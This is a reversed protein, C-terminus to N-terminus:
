SGTASSPAAPAAAAVPFAGPTADLEDKIRRSLENKVSWQEEAVAKAQVRVTLNADHFAVVGPVEPRELLRARWAPDRYLGDAARELAALVEDLRAGYGVAVEVVARGWVRTMNSVLQITGNPIVHMAGDLGRLVTVRMTVEEVTGSVAGIKVVDGLTYQNELLIFLGALYDKVINQAGFALAAGVVGAGAVIPGVNINVQSLMSLVVSVWVVVRGVSTAAGVLTAGRQRREADDAGARKDAIRAVIRRGVVRAATDLAIGAFLLLGIRYLPVWERVDRM